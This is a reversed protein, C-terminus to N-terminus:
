EACSLAEIQVSWIEKIQFGNGGPAVLEMESRSVNATVPCSTPMGDASYLLVVKFLESNDRRSSGVHTVKADILEVGNPLQERVQALETANLTAKLAAENLGANAHSVNAFLTMGLVLLVLKM